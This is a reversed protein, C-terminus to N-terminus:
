EEEEDMMIARYLSAFSAKIWIIAPFVGIILALIGLFFIFISTIALVFIEWAYGDTKKWSTEIAAIPELKKDMVLYSVFALRCAIIIGPIILAVMGIGILSVVLINVLVINIYNNFGIFLDKLEIKRDYVAQVFLYNASYKIIPVFLFLYALGLIELLIKESTYMDTSTKLVKLPPDFISAVIVILLLPLFYQKMKNWGFSLSKSVSPPTLENNKMVIVNKSNIGLHIPLILDIIAVLTHIQFFV